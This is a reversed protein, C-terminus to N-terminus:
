IREHTIFADQVYIKGDFDITTLYNIMNFSNNLCILCLRQSGKHSVYVNNLFLNILTLDIIEIQVGSFKFLGINNQLWQPRYSFYLQVILLDHHVIM